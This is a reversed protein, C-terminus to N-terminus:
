VPQTQRKEEATLGKDAIIESVRQKSLGLTKGLALLSLRGQAYLGKVRKRFVLNPMPGRRRLEVHGKIARAVADRSCGLARALSVTTVGHRYADVLIPVDQPLIRPVRRTRPKPNHRNVCRRRIPFRKMWKVLTAENMLVLAAKRTIPLGLRRLRLLYRAHVNYKRMADLTSISGKPRRKRRRLNSGRDQCGLPFKEMWRDLEVENVLVMRGRRTSPLGRRRLRLLYSMPLRHKAIADGLAIMGSPRDTRRRTSEFPQCAVSWALVKGPDLGLLAALKIIQHVREKDM